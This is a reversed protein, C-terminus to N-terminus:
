KKMWDTKQKKEGQARLRYLENEVRNRMVIISNKNDFRCIYKQGSGTRETYGIINSKKRCSGREQRTRTIRLSFQLIYTTSAMRKM